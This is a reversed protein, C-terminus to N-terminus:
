SFRMLLFLSSHILTNRGSVSNVSSELTLSSNPATISIAAFNQNSVVSADSGAIIADLICTAGGYCPFSINQACLLTFTATTPSSLNGYNVVLFTSANV